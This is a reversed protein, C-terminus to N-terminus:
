YDANKEFNLDDNETINATKNYLTTRPDLAARLVSGLRQWRLLPVWLAHGNFDWEVVIEVRPETLPAHVEYAGHWCHRM